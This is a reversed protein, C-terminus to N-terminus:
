IQLIHLVNLSYQIFGTHFRGSNTHYHHLFDNSDPMSESERIHLDPKFCDVSGSQESCERQKQFMFEQVFDIVAASRLYVASAFASACM